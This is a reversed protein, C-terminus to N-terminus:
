ASTPDREHSKLAALAEEVTEVFEVLGKVGGLRLSDHVPSSAGVVVALRQGRNSLRERLRYLMHIGASDLYEVGTLDLVVGDVGNPTATGVAHVIAGANSMDIEGSVRVLLADETSRYEVDAFSM